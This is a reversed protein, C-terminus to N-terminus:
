IKTLKVKWGDSWYKPARSLIKEVRYQGMASSDVNDTTGLWGESRQERSMNTRGPEPRADIRLKGTNAFYVNILYYEQGVVPQTEFTVQMTEM